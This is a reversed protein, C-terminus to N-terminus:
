DKTRLGEAAIRDLYSQLILAAAAADAAEDGSSREAFASTLVENEFVMPLEVQKGLREAFARVAATERSSGGGFPVPLGIVLGGVGERRAVAVVDGISGVVSHPFAICGEADSLALGIRKSGYDVGLYRM